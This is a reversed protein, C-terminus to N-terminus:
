GWIRGEPQISNRSRAEGKEPQVAVELDFASIPVNPEHLLYNAYRSGLVNPLHFARGGGLVVEWDRGTWRFQYLLKSEAGWESSVDGRSGKPQYIRADLERDPVAEGTAFRYIGALEEPTARSLVLVLKGLLAERM